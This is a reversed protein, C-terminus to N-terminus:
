SFKYLLNQLTHRAIHLDRFHVPPSKYQSLPIFSDANVKHLSHRHREISKLFLVRKRDVGERDLILM